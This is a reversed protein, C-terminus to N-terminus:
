AVSSREGEKRLCTWYICSGPIKWNPSGLDDFFLNGMEWPKMSGWGSGQVVNFEMRRCDVSVGCECCNQSSWCKSEQRFDTTPSNQPLLWRTLVTPQKQLLARDSINLPIRFAVRDSSITGVVSTVYSFRWSGRGGLERSECWVCFSLIFGQFLEM